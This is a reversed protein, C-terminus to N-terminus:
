AALRETAPDGTRLNGTVELRHAVSETSVEHATLDALAVVGLAIADALVV